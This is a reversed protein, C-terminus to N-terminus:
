ASSPSRPWRPWGARGPSGGSGWRSSRPPRAAPRCRRRYRCCRRGPPAGRRHSRRQHRRIRGLWLWVVIAAPLYPLAWLPALLAASGTAAAAAIGALQLLPRGIRDVLVTPGMARYGRTAGLLTDLLAAFPLAVALARLEAAM